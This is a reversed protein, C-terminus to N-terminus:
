KGKKKLRKILENVTSREQDDIEIGANVASTVARKNEILQYTDIEITERGLMYWATVSDKQGIRHCRDESQEMKGPNWGLETFLVDSAATLTIGEGAAIINCVLLRCRPDDQFTDVTQQRVKSDDGGMIHPVKGGHAQELAKCLSLVTNRHWAFVVLKQGSALFDEVWEVIAKLKGRGVIQKLTNLRVLHEASKAKQVEGEAHRRRAEAREERSLHAISANFTEDSAAEARLYAIFDAEARNYEARNDIETDIVTRIKAPLEKLVDSKERRVYCSARLRNNLEVTNSAGDFHWRDWDDKYANCFYQRYDWNSKAVDAVRGLIELQSLLEIPRNVIATGGLIYRTDLGQVFAHVAKTRQAKDNVLYHGEDGVWSAPNRTAKLVPLHVHAINYNLVYFDAPPYEALPKMGGLVEVRAGPITMKIERDWNYKVNAPCVVVCPYAKLHHITAIAQITNHTVVHRETVYLQDQAAVSICIVEATGVPEISRIIRTPRYKAPGTGYREAKRSLWFPKEGEPLRVSMRYRLLCEVRVGAPNVYSSTGVNIRAIGGLSEVLEQVDNAFRESSSTFEIHGDKAAHGDGDLIGALLFRRDAVTAHLFDWPIWKEPSGHGMLDLDTLTQKVPNTTNCPHDWSIDYDYRSMYRLHMGEPLLSSLRGVTESDPVCVRVRDNTLSGNALLYGLLYPHIPLAEGPDYEVPAVMPIRYRRNPIDTAMIEATSMVQYPQGRHQQTHTWVPWLHDGDCVTVAGDSLIVRYIPLVGRPFIGTIATPKGDSGVAYDGIQLDEINRWGGYTTLVKTGIPHGKGLGPADAIFGRRVRVAYAIGARQFPYPERLLGEVRFDSAEAKSAVALEAAQGRMADVKAGVGPGYAFGHKTHLTHLAPATLATLPTRWEKKDAFFRIGPITAKVLDKTEYSFPYKVLITGPTTELLQRGQAQAIRDREERQRQSDRERQWAAYQEFIRIEEDIERNRQREERSLREKRERHWEGDDEVRRVPPIDEWDIGAGRLQNAYKRTAKYAWSLEKEGWESPDIMALAHGHHSDTANWGIGNQEFAHDSDVATLASVAAVLLPHPAVTTTM